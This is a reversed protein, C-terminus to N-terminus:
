LFSSFLFLLFPRAAINGGSGLTSATPTIAHLFGRTAYLSVSVFAHYIPTICLTETVIVGKSNM